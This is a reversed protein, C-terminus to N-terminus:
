AEAYSRKKLWKIAYYDLGDPIIKKELKKFHEVQRMQRSIYGEYKLNINVQESLMGLCARTRHKILQHSCKM